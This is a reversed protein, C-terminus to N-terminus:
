FACGGEKSGASMPMIGKRALVRLRRKAAETVTVPQDEWAAVRSLWTPCQSERIKRLRDESTGIICTKGYQDVAWPNQSPIPPISIIPDKKM